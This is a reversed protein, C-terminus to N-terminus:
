FLFLVAAVVVVFFVVVLFCVVFFLYVHLTNETAISVKVIKM